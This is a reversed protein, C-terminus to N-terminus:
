IKDYNKENLIRDCLENVLVRFEFPLEDKMEEIEEKIKEAIEKDTAKM